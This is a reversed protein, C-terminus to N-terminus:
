SRADRVVRYYMEIDRTYGNEQTSRKLENRELKRGAKM